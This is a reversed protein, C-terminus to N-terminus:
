PSVGSDVNQQSVDIVDDGADVTLPAVACALAFQVRWRQVGRAVSQQPKGAM